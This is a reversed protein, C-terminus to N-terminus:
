DHHATGLVCALLLTQKKRFAITDALSIWRLPLLTRLSMTYKRMNVTQQSQWSLRPCLPHQVWWNTIVWCTSHAPCEEPAQMLLAFDRGVHPECPPLLCYTFLCVCLMYYLIGTHALFLVLVCFAYHITHHFHATKPLNTPDAERIFRYKFLVSYLSPTASLWM